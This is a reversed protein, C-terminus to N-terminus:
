FRRCKKRWGFLFIMLPWVIVALVPLLPWCWWTSKGSSLVNAATGMPRAEPVSYRALRVLTEAQEKPTM